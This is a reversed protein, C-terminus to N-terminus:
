RHSRVTLRRDVSLFFKRRVDSSITYTLLNLLGYLFSAYETLSPNSSFGTMYSKVFASCIYLLPCVFSASSAESSAPTDTRANAQIPSIHEPPDDQKGPLIRITDSQVMKRGLRFHIESKQVLSTPVAYGFTSSRVYSLTLKRDLLCSRM